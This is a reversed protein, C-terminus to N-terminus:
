GGGGGGGGGSEPIRGEVRGRERAINAQQQAKRIQRERRRELDRDFIRSVAAKLGM